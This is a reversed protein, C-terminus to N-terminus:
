IDLVKDVFLKAIRPDFQTGANNLLETRADEKTIAKRYVRDHSMADYSDVVSIIRSLIPIEEGALGQPYGKGDWREHHCLIYEAIHKLEPAAMAIRYGIEPHKKMERWEGDTLSGSKTLISDEIGIKGIDHLMSFLELEDMEKDSLGLSAGLKMSLDALRETHEETEHSKEHMTTKISSIISSRLSNSELLKRRYMLEEASKMVKDFSEEAYLKTAYGLSISAYITEKDTRNVYQECVNNIREVVSKAIRNDTQPLLICFEDGGIRAVIDEDRVSSTLIKAVEILLKDGERHGLADNILKLGNIDGMIVSLPLQQQIDLQITKEDFFTRNYLGTLGDHYTLFLIEEEKKKRETVDRSVGILGLVNGQKDFYSTKITELYVETGDSYISMNEIKIPNGQELIEKDVTRFSEAKEKPFLDLDSCGILANEDMGLFKEFAANCGAYVSNSDKYFILDPVSDILTKLLTKKNQNEQYLLKYNNESDILELRMQNNKFGDYLVRSLVFSVIPFIVLAAFWMQNFVTLMKDKPLALIGILMGIHVLLGVIYFDININQKKAIVYRFRFKNWLLGIVATLVVVLVAMLVGDGGIAIRGICIIIVAVVTPIFGFFMASVSVLISRTDFIVGSILNVPTLMLSIGIVGILVGILVCKTIGNKESQVFLTNYIISLVLLLAANNLIGIIIDNYM